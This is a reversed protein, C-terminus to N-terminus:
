ILWRPFDFHLLYQCWQLVLAVDIGFRHPFLFPLPYRSIEM